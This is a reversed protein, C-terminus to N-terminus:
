IEEQKQKKNLPKQGSFWSFTAPWVAGAAVVLLFYRVMRAAGEHPIIYSLPIKLGEKVAFVVAIGFCLKLVQALLPAATEFKLYRSDVFYVVVIGFVCGALTYANEYAHAYNIPDLGEKCFFEMYALYSLALLVMFGILGWMYAGNTRARKIIPRLSFILALAIAFSVLVDAPTHVGLYMRSFPVLICLTIAAIRVARKKAFVAIAGFSGVSSQTHGSPFSFGTAGTKAGEAPMFSPDKVWPRPVRCIIKLFQNIITGIFGVSLVFYGEYKDVCWFVFLGIVIFFTEDGLFTIALFIKDLIPTSIDRLLYLFEM